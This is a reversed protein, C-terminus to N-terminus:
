WEDLSLHPLEHAGTGAAGLPIEEFRGATLEVIGSFSRGSLNIAVLFEEVGDRRVYTVIRDEDSNRLWITEGQRLAAHSRRLAIIRRYFTGVEPRRAGIQWDIPAREFLAPARSET